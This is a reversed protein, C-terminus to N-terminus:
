APPSRDLSANDLRLVVTRERPRVAEVAGFPLARRKLFLGRRRVVIRDPPTPTGSTASTTSGAWTLVTAATALLRGLEAQRRLRQEASEESSRGHV